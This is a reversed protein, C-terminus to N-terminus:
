GGPQTVSMRPHVAPWIKDGVSLIRQKAFAKGLNLTLIFSHALPHTFPFTRRQGRLETAEGRSLPGTKTSPPGHRWATKDSGRGWPSDGMNVLHCQPPILLPSLQAPSPGLPWTAASQTETVRQGTHTLVPWPVDRMPPLPESIGPLGPSPTTSVQSWTVGTKRRAMHFPQGLVFQGLTRRSVIVRPPCHYSRGVPHELAAHGM